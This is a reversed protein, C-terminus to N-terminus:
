NPPYTLYSEILVKTFVSHSVTILFLPDIIDPLLQLDESRAATRCWGPSDPFLCYPTLVAGLERRCGKSDFLSQKGEMKWINIERHDIRVWFLKSFPLCLFV